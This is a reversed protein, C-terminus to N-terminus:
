DLCCGVCQRTCVNACDRRDLDNAWLCRHDYGRIDHICIYIREIFSVCMMQHRHRHSGACQVYKHITYAYKYKYKYTTSNTTGMLFTIVSLICFVYRRRRMCEVSNEYKNRITSCESCPAGYAIAPFSHFYTSTSFLSFHTLSIRLFSECSFSTVTVTSVITKIWYIPYPFSMFANSYKKFKTEVIKSFNKKSLNAKATFVLPWEYGEKVNRTNGIMKWLNVIKTSSPFRIYANENSFTLESSKSLLWDFNM